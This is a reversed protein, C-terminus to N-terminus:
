GGCKVPCPDLPNTSRSMINKSRYWGYIDWPSGDMWEVTGSLVKSAELFILHASPGDLSMWTGFPHPVPPLSECNLVTPQQDGGNLLMSSVPRRRVQWCDRPGTIIGTCLRKKREGIGHEQITFGEIM